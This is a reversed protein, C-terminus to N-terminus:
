AGREFHRGSWCWGAKPGAAIKLGRSTRKRSRFEGLSFGGDSGLLTTGGEGSAGAHCRLCAGPTCNKKSNHPPSQGRFTLVCCRNPTPRRGGRRRASRQTKPACRQGVWGREIKIWTGAEKALRSFLVVAAAGRWLHSRSTTAVSISQNSKTFEVRRPADCTGRRCVVSSYPAGGCTPGLPPRWWFVRIAKQSGWAGHRLARVHRSVSILVAGDVGVSAPVVMQGLSPRGGKGRRGRMVGRAPVATALRVRKKGGEEKAFRTFL